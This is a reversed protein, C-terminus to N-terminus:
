YIFLIGEKENIRKKVEGVFYSLKVELMIKKGVNLLKVMICVFVDYKLELFVGNNIEYEVM